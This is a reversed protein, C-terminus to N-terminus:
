EVAHWHQNKIAVFLCRWFVGDSCIKTRFNFGFDSIKFEVLLALYCCFCSLPCADCGGIGVGGGGSGCSSSSCWCFHLYVRRSRHGARRCCGFCGRCDCHGEGWLCRVWRSGECCSSSCPWTCFKKWSPSTMRKKGDGRATDFISCRVGSEQWMFDKHFCRGM